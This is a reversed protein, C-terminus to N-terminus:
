ANLVAEAFDIDQRIRALKEDTVYDSKLLTAEAAEKLTQARDKDLEDITQTEEALILVSGEEAKKTGHSVEAVGGRLYIAKKESEVTYSLKGGGLIVLAPLHAPLVQFEGEVGPATVQEVQASLVRGSPTIVELHLM